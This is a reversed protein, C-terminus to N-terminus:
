IGGKEHLIQSSMAPARDSQFDNLKKKLFSTSMGNLGGWKRKTIVENELFVDIMKDFKNMDPQMSSSNSQSAVVQEALFNKLNPFAAKTIQLHKSLVAILDEEDTRTVIITYINKKNKDLESSIDSIEHTREDFHNRINSYRFKNNSAECDGEILTKTLPFAKEVNFKIEREYDLLDGIFAAIQPPNALLNNRAEVLIQRQVEKDASRNLKELLKNAARGEDGDHWRTFGYRVIHNQTNGAEPKAALGFKFLNLEEEFDNDDIVCLRSLRDAAILAYSAGKVIDGENPAKNMRGRSFFTTLENKQIETLFCSTLDSLYNGLEVIKNHKLVKNVTDSLYKSEAPLSTSLIMKVLEREDKSTVQPETIKNFREKGEAKLVSSCLNKLSEIAHKISKDKASSLLGEIISTYATAHDGEGGGKIGPDSRQESNIVLEVFKMHDGETVRCSVLIQNTRSAGVKYGSTGISIIDPTESGHPEKESTFDSPYDESESGRNSISSISQQEAFGASDIPSENSTRQYKLPNDVDQEVKSSNGVESEEAINHM